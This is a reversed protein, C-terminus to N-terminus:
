EDNLARGIAEVLLAGDVPKQSLEISGAAQARRPEVDYATLLGSAVYLM